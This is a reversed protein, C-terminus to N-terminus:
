NTTQIDNHNTPTLDLSCIEPHTHTNRTVPSTPVKLLLFLGRKEKELMRKLISFYGGERILFIRGRM